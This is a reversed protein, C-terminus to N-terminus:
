PMNREAAKLTSFTRSAIWGRFPYTQPLGTFQSARHKVIEWSYGSNETEIQYVDMGPVITVCDATLPLREVIELLRVANDLQVKHQLTREELMERLHQNESQVRELEQGVVSIFAQNNDDSRTM